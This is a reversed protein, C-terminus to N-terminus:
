VIGHLSAAIPTPGSAAALRLVLAELRDAAQAVTLRSTDIVPLDLGSAERRLYAAWQDMRANDLEPQGRPGRLRAARVDAACDFLIVHARWGAGAGPAAFVTSPRTQADLVAVRVDDGLAALRALWDNTMAAQWQEGSGHNREMIEIAPVGASDFHFCRVGPLGRADLAQVTSTKGAGSAGTVVLIFAPV